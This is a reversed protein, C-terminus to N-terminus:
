IPFSSDGQNILTDYAIENVTNHLALFCLKMCEPLDKVANIDWREVADTFLELEDLTGYVDYVDDIITIFSAVKTLVKRCSSSHPKSEMGVAWFFCEMLRDRGFTLKSALGLNKWWRSMEKLDRQLISQVMNFNMKALQLLLHNTDKKKDNAEIYWRAESMGIRRHLPLELAHSVSEMMSVDLESPNGKQLTNILYTRAQETAKDLLDEGEFGLFSAEYLSLMGKVDKEQIALLNGKDDLSNKFEDQSVEYGYQRLLRFMLSTAHLSKHNLLNCGTSDVFRDLVSKIDKEFRYALGLRQIDDILELISLFDETESYIAARTEEELKRANDKYLLDANENKLSQIFSHSWITPQYDSSRRQNQSHSKQAKVSWTLEVSSIHFARPQPHYRNMPYFLSSNSLNIAM